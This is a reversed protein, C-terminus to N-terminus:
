VAFIMRSSLPAFIFNSKPTTGGGGAALQTGGYPPTTSGGERAIQCGVTPARKRAIGAWARGASGDGALLSRCFDAYARGRRKEAGVDEAWAVTMALLKPTTGGGGAALQTGCYPPTKSGGERAIQCGVTPAQKRAIGARACGASGDGALLSRCFDAYTRGRRKEAGVDEAWGVTM